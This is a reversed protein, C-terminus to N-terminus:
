TPSNMAHSPSVGSFTPATFHRGLRALDSRALTDTRRAIPRLRVASVAVNCHVARVHSPHTSSALVLISATRCPRPLVHERYFVQLDRRPDGKALLRM